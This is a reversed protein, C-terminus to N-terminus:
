MMCHNANVILRAVHDLRVLVRPSSESLPVNTNEIEVPIIQMINDEYDFTISAIVMDFGWSESNMQRRFKRL